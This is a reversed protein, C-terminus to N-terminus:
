QKNRLFITQNFTALVFRRKHTRTDYGSQQAVTYRFRLIAPHELSFEPDLVTSGFDGSQAANAIDKQIVIPTGTATPSVRILRWEDVLGDRDGDGTDDAEFAFTVTDGLVPNGDVDYGTTTRFAVCKATTYDLPTTAVDRTLDYTEQDFAGSLTTTVATTTYVGMFLTPDADYAGGQLEQILFNSTGIGKTSMGARVTVETTPEQLSTIVGLALVMLIALLAFAVVLEM